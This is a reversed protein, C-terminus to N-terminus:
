QCMRTLPHARNVQITNIHSHAQGALYLAGGYNENKFERTSMKLLEEARELNEGQARPDTALSEKTARIAIEAEAMTSAEEARSEITRLKAKTRVVEQVAEDLMKDQDKLRRQVAASRANEELLQLQVRNLEAETRELKSRQRNAVQKLARHKAQLDSYGECPDAAASAPAPAAQPKMCGAMVGVPLILALTLVM